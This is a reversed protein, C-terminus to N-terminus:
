GRSSERHLPDYGRSSAPTMLRRSRSLFATCAIRVQIRSDIVTGRTASGISPRMRACGQTPAPVVCPIRSRARRSREGRAGSSRSRAPPTSPGRIHCGSSPPLARRACCSSPSRRPVAPFADVPLPHRRACSSSTITRGREDCPPSVLPFPHSIRFQFQHGIRCRAGPPRRRGGPRPPRARGGGRLPSRRPIAATVTGDRDIGGAGRRGVWGAPDRRSGPVPAGHRPRDLAPGIM